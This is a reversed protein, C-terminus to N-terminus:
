STRLGFQSYFFNFTDEAKAKNFKFVKKFLPIAYQKLHNYQEITITWEYVWGENRLADFTTKNILNLQYELLHESINMRTIKM